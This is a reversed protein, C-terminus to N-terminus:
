RIVPKLYLSLGSILLVFMPLVIGISALINNKFHIGLMIIIAGLIFSGGLTFMKNREKM